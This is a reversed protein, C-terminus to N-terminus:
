INDTKQIRNELWAHFNLGNESFLESLKVFLGPM